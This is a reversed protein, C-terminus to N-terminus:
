CATDLLTPFVQSHIDPVNIQSLYMGCELVKIIRQLCNRVTDTPSFFLNVYGLKANPGLNVNNGIKWPATQMYLKWAMLTFMM